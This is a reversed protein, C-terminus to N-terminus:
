RLWVFEVIEMLRYGPGETYCLHPIEIGNRKAVQWITEEPQAELKIGDILFKIAKTM